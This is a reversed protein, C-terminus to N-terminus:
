KSLNSEKMTRKKKMKNTKPITTRKHTHTCRENDSDSLIKYANLRLMVIM